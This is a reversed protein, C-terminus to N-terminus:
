LLAQHERCYQLGGFRKANNWCFKGEPYGIKIGCHACILKKVPEATSIMNPAVGVDKPPLAVSNVHPPHVVQVLQPKVAIEKPRMFDPMSLLDSPRHQRMLKDGWEKITDLSRMNLAAKLIGGAGTSATFNMHWTPFQDAKIVNGTNFVKADPREIIAKPHLMVVHHFDLQKQTRGVIGLRELLGTLVREHRHSQEIPSPIGFRFDDYAVTFEGHSNIVLNGSYNKTEILYMGIARNIILHDIQAVEGDVVFRLDHMVVHNEGNKFYGDLYHASDKEGQIGKKTRMLEERLWKKQQYDLLHSRQLDELLNLRKSKDDASKLLM